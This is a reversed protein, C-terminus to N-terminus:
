ESKPPSIEEKEKFEYNYDFIEWATKDNQKLLLMETHEKTNKYNVDYYIFVYFGDEINEIESQFYTKTVKRSKLEGFELMLNNMLGIWNEQQFKLKVEESLLTYANKYQEQKIDNLWDLAVKNADKIYTETYKQAFLPYISIVLIFTLITKRM